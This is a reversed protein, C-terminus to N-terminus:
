LLGVRQHPLYYHSHSPQFVLFHIDFSGSLACATFASNLFFILVVLAVVETVVLSSLVLFFRSNIFNNMAYLICGSLFLWLWHMDSVWRVTTLRCHCFVAVFIIVRATFHYCYWLMHIGQYGKTVLIWHWLGRMLFTDTAHLCKPQMRCKSTKWILVPDLPNISFAELFCSCILQSAHEVYISLWM